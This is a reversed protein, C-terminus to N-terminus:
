SAPGTRARSKAGGGLFILEIIQYNGSVMDVNVHLREVWGEGPYEITAAVVFESAGDITMVRYARGAVEFNSTDEIGDLGLACETLFSVRSDYVTRPSLGDVIGECGNTSLAQAVFLTYEEFGGIEAIKQNLRGIEIRAEESVDAATVLSSLLLASALLHRTPM